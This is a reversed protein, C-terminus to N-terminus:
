VKIYGEKMPDFTSKDQKEVTKAIAMATDPDVHKAAANAVKAYTTVDGEGAKSYKKMHKGTLKM